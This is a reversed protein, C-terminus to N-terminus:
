ANEGEVIRKDRRFVKPSRTYHVDSVGARANCVRALVFFLDSLRNLYRLVEQNLHEDQRSLTVVRREARRSVTRCLHLDAAAQSGGPIIFYELEETEQEYRDIRKEVEAVNEPTISYERFKPTLTALDSCCDCLTQQIEGLDRVIDAYRQDELGALTRGVFSNLEDVTGYAEVRPHDKELRGGIVGTTGNDGTKTYIKMLNRTSKIRRTKTVEYSHITRFSESKTLAIKEQIKSISM